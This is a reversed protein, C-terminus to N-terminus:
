SCNWKAIVDSLSTLAISNLDIIAECPSNILKSIDWNSINGISWTTSNYGASEFMSYILTVKSTNWNTLNLNFSSSSYGANAFMNSMNTVKSTNWNNLNGISWITANSGTQYFMGSMDTVNTTNWLSLNLNFDNANKGTESFMWSMNTVKSTDWSGINGLNFTTLSSGFSSFMGSMDTVKSTNWGSLDLNLGTANYGASTFMNSMDIVNSTDWSSIDGINWNEATSGTDTFMGSMDTVNSTDWSSLDLNFNIINYNYGTSEFMSSMTKTDNTKLEGIVNSLNQLIAFLFDAHIPAKVGGNQGITIKYLDASSGQEYWLMVSGNQTESVDFSGIVEEPVVNSNIFEISEVKDREITTNLFNTTLNIEDRLSMALNSYESALTELETLEIENLEYQKNEYEKHLMDSFYHYLNIRKAKETFNLSGILRDNGLSYDDIKIHAKFEKDQNENQNFPMSSFYLKLTYTHTKSEDTPSDFTGYGLLTTSIGNKVPILDTNDKIVTGSNDTNESTLKYQIAYNNFTNDDVVLYLSYGMDLDTTNNGTVTFIKTAIPNDTPLLNSATINNGGAFIMSMKGGTVTITTSDEGTINATFYAYSVGIVILLLFVLSTVALALKNKTKLIIVVKM